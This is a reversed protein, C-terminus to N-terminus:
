NDLSLSELRLLCGPNMWGLVFLASPEFGVGPALRLGIPSVLRRSRSACAPSGVWCLGLRRSTRKKPPEISRVGKMLTLRIEDLSKLWDDLYSMTIKHKSEHQSFVSDEVVINRLSMRRSYHTANLIRSCKAMEEYGTLVMFLARAYDKARFLRVAARHHGM